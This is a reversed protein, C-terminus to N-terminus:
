GGPRNLHTVLIVKAGKEVLYEITPVSAKIKRDEAVQGSEIAVNFDVRVLVKKDTLDETQKITKM